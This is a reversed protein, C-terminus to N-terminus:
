AAGLLRGYSTPIEHNGSLLYSLLSARLESSYELAVECSEIDTDVSSITQVIRDQIDLPPLDFSFQRLMERNINKQTAGRAESVITAELSQAALLLFNPRIQSEHAISWAIAQNTAMPIMAMAARGVTAYMSILVSGRPALRGGIASLGANTIKSSTETIRPRSMDAIVAWPIQGGDYYAAWGAKPTGGSFWQAVDGLTVCAWDPGPNSLLDHLLATRATRSAEARAELAAIYNDVSEIVDVIRRQEEIPPLSFRLAAVRKQGLHKITTGTCLEGFEGSFFRARMSQFLFQPKLVRQDITRLRIVTNQICLGEHRNDALAPTGVSEKNGGEVLLMDGSKTAFKSEEVETFDMELVDDLNIGDVSINAARLYPKPRVGLVKDPALQRGMTVDALATLDTEVWGERM